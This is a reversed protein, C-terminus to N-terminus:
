HIGVAALPLVHQLPTVGLVGQLPSPLRLWGPRKGEQRGGPIHCDMRLRIVQPVARRPPRCPQVLAPVLPFGEFVLPAAPPAEAGVKECNTYCSRSVGVCVKAVACRHRYM